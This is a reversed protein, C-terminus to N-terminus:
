SWGRMAFIKYGWSLLYLVLLVRMARNTLRAYIVASWPIRRRLCLLAAPVALVTLLFLLLGFPQAIFAAIFRGHAAYAFCTTLGCSPCPFGTWHLFTCPPLGLQQHTGVGTPSPTLWRAVALTVVAVTAIGGYGLADNRTFRDTNATTFSTSNDSALEFM